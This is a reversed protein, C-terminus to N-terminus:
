IAIQHRVRTCWRLLAPFIWGAMGRRWLGRQIATLPLLWLVFASLYLTRSLTANGHGLIPLAMLLLCAGLPLGALV